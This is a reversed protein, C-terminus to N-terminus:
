SRWYARKLEPDLAFVAEMAARYDKAPNLGHDFCYQRVRADVEARADQRREPTPDDAGPRPQASPWVYVRYENGVEDHYVHSM